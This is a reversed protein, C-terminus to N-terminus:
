VQHETPGFEYQKKCLERSSGRGNKLEQDYISPKMHLLGRLELADSSYLVTILESKTPNSYCVRM